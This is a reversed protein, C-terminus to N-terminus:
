DKRFSFWKLFRKKQFPRPAVANVFPIEEKTNAVKEFNILLVRNTTSGNIVIKAINCFESNIYVTSFSRMISQFHRDDALVEAVNKVIFLNEKGFVLSERVMQMFFNSNDEFFLSFTCIVPKKAYYQNVDEVVVCNNLKNNERPSIRANISRKISNALIEFSDEMKLDDEREKKSDVVFLFVEIWKWFCIKWWKKQVM